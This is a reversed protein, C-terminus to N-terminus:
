ITGKGSAVINSNKVVDERHGSTWTWEKWSYGTALLEVYGDRDDMVYHKYANKQIYHDHKEVSSLWDSTSAYYFGSHLCIGESRWHKECWYYHELDNDPGDYGNGFRDIKYGITEINKNDPHPGVRAYLVEDFILEIRRNDILGEKNGELLRGGGFVLSCEPEDEQTHSLTLGGGSAFITWPVSCPKLITTM